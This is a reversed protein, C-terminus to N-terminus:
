AAAKWRIDNEAGFAYLWEIFASALPVTFRRTQTGLLVFGNGRLAPALQLDEVKKWEDALEPDDKTEERFTHVLLRKMDEADWQRGAHVYQRAIDGIMAHYKEEQLRSKPAQQFVVMVGDSAQQAWRAVERRAPHPEPRLVFM